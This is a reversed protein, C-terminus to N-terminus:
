REQEHAAEVAHRRGRLAAGAGVATVASTPRKRGKPYVGNRWAPCPSVHTRASGKTSTTMGDFGRVFMTRKRRVTSEVITAPDCANKAKLGNTSGRRSSSPTGNAKVRSAM